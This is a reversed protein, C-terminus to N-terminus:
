LNGGIVTYTFGEPSMPRAVVAVPFPDRKYRDAFYGITALLEERRMHRVDRDFFTMRMADGSWQKVFLDPLPNLGDSM